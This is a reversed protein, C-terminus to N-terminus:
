MALDSMARATRGSMALVQQAPSLMLSAWISRTVAPAAPVSIGENALLRKEPDPNGGSV